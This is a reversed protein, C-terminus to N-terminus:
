RTLGDFALGLVRDTRGHEVLCAAVHAHHHQVAITPLDLQLAYKSSLYEPHLDHAVVEPAVGYLDRVHDVAQLFSTYTALHELDGIHHSPV